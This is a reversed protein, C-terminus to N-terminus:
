SRTPLLRDFTKATNSTNARRQIKAPLADVSTDRAPPIQCTDPAAPADLFNALFRLNPSSFPSDPTGSEHHPPPVEHARMNGTLPPFDKSEAPLLKSAASLSPEIIVSRDPDAVVGQRLLLASLSADHNARRSSRPVDGGIESAEQKSAGSESVEKGSVQHASTSRLERTRSVQVDDSGSSTSRSALESLNETVATAASSPAHVVQAVSATAELAKSLRGVEQKLRVVEQALGIREGNVHALQEQLVLAWKIYVGPDVGVPPQLQQSATSTGRTELRPQRAMLASAEARSESIQASCAQAALQPMMLQDRSCALAHAHMEQNFRASCSATPKLINDGQRLGASDRSAGGMAM